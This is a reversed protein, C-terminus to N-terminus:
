SARRVRAYGIRSRLMAAALRLPSVRAPPALADEQYLRRTEARRIKGSSTRPLTGPELVLVHAPRLGARSAVRSAVREALDDGAGDRAREVLVVLAEGDAGEAVVGIAACCGTRVGPVGSAADEIEQPAHNRGRVVILDKARGHLYLEGEYLFGTDGTDLWGDRLTAATADPRAFYGAM